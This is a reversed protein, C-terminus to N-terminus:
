FWLASVASALDRIINEHFHVSLLHSQQAHKVKAGSKICDIVVDQQCRQIQPQFKQYRSKNIYYIHWIFKVSITPASTRLKFTM